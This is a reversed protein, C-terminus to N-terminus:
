RTRNRMVPRTIKKNSSPKKRKKSTLRPVTLKPRSHAVSHMPKSHASADSRRIKPKTKQDLVYRHIHRQELKPKRRPMHHKRIKGKPLSFKTFDHRLWFVWLVLIVLILGWSWVVTHVLNYHALDFTRVYFFMFFIRFLNIVYILPILLLGYAKRRMPLDTAMVLAFFALMSKWGTCDWNILAGWTGNKVPISILYGNIAPNAGVYNLLGYVLNATMQQLEVFRWELIIIVYLPIAILNFKVLFKLVKLLKRDHSDM